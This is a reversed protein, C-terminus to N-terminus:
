VVLAAFLLQSVTSAAGASGVTLTLVYVQGDAAGTDKGLIGQSGLAAATRTVLGSDAKTTGAANTQHVRLRSNVGSTGVTFAIWAALYVGDVIVIGQPLTITAIVTETNDTPSASVTSSFAVRGSLDHNRIAQQIPELPM